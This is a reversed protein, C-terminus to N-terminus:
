RKQTEECDAYHEKTSGHIKNQKVSMIFDYKMGVQKFVYSKDENMQELFIISSPEMNELCVHCYHEQSKWRQNLGQFWSQFTYM